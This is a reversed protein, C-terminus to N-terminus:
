GRLATANKSPEGNAREAVCTMSEKPTRSRGPGCRLVQKPATVPRPRAHGARRPAARAPTRSARASMNTRLPPATLHPSTDQAQAVAGWTGVDKSQGWRMGIGRASMAEVIYRPIKDFISTGAANDSGAMSREETVDGINTAAVLVALPLCCTWRLSFAGSGPRAEGTLPGLPAAATKGPRTPRLDTLCCRTISRRDPFIKHNRAGSLDLVAQRRFEQIRSLVLPGRALRDGRESRTEPHM